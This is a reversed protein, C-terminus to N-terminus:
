EERLALIPDVQTAKRAPLYSALLAAGLLLAAVAGLTAPDGPRVEFLQSTLLRTLFVAALTGLALGAIVLRGSQVLVMARIARATAGLAMRIGMEHTRRSVTYALVGYLGVLALLLALAAFFGFIVAFFREQWISRTVVDRMTLIRSVAINRDVSAIRARLVKAPDTMEGSTRVLYAMSGFEFEGEPLYVSNSPLMRLTSNHAVGAVGIITHWPENWEPPGYRVRKGIASRGPWYHRAINVDVITVLPNKADGDDFDRGELIPIGLTQFYGPTVVTQNIMPADKLGLLPAGEVTFSRSWGDLLPVTNAGAASIAGPLSGLERRIQRVVQVAAPGNPYRSAPVATQMTVVNETRFGPNLRSLKWFTVIMLGAGALLLVSMAVEAVVLASRFRAKAGGATAGRGGDKLAEIVNLRSASWAPVAGALLATGATIAIVFAAIRVDPTFQMWDPFGQPVLATLTPVAAWALLVGGMAGATGLLVSEVVFQRILRARSAGLSGRVAIERTRASVKVLLLNTINACAILLVFAVAGLLAMLLPKVQQTDRVRYPSVNVTQGYNETPHERIIQQMIGRLDDQAREVTAGPRLRAIGELGHDTRSNHKPDLQLPMWLEAVDPFHFGRPMVGVVRSQSSGVGISKGIIDRDAGYRRRWLDESLIVTSPANVRDEEPTFTRGMLPQVGLIRFLPETGQGLPVREADMDGRLTALGSGFMAIDRLTRNRAGFDLYNPYAIAGSLNQHKAVEEVYVLSEQHPYPLPRLLMGNVLTFITVTSGIGLALVLIAVLTTMRERRLTRLAYVLDHRIMHYQEKPADILVGLYLNLLTGFGPGERLCDDLTRCMEDAFHDRFESPYLWLLGRYFRLAPAPRQM